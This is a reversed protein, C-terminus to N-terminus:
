REYVNNHIKGSDSPNSNYALFLPPLKTADLYEYDGYGREKMLNESFDM